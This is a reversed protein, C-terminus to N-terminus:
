RGVTIIVGVTVGRHYGEGWFITEMWVNVGGPKLFQRGLARAGLGSGRGGV